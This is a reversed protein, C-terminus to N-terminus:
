VSELVREEIDKVALTAAGVLGANSGLRSPRIEPVFPSLECLRKRIPEFLIEGAESIGGGFVIAEPDLLAAISAFSAAIVDAIRRVSETARSDGERAAIFLEEPTAGDRGLASVALATIAGSAALTEFCGFDYIGSGPWSPDIVMYGIEGAAGSSGRYVRGDVVIGAGIGTGISVFVFSSLELGCGYHLEAMAAANVDNDIRVPVSFEDRLMAAVPTNNWGFAPAVSVIGSSPDTVGPAGLGIGGINNWCRGSAEITERVADAIAQVAADGRIGLKGPSPGERHFLIKGTLDAIGVRLNTGGLDVGVAYQSDTNLKLMIPPRGGTSCGEGAVTLLGLSVLGDVATCVTPQSLGSRRAIEARSVQGASEVLRLITRMNHRRVEAIDTIAKGSLHDTQRVDAGGYKTAAILYTTSM